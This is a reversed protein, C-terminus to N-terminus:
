RSSSTRACPSTPYLSYQQFVMAVDRNAPSWETVDTGGISVRGEHDRELGSLCRLTTTKGAGTPGLLVYFEGDAIELSLDDVAVLGDFVKSLGELGISAM